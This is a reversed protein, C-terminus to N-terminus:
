NHNQKGETHKAPQKAETYASTDAAVNTKYQHEYVPAYNLIEKQCHKFTQLSVLGQTLLHHPPLVSPLQLQTIIRQPNTVILSEKCLLTHIYVTLM